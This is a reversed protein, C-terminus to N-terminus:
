RCRGGFDSLLLSLDLTTVRGDGNVDGDARTAGSSTPLHALLQVLDSLDVDADADVDSLCYAPEFHLTTTMASGCDNFAFVSYDGADEPMLPDFTLVASSVGHIRDTEYLAVGNLYWSFEVPEASQVDVTLEGRLGVIGSAVTPAGRIWIPRPGVWEALGAASVGDVYFVQAGVLLRPEAGDRTLSGIARVRMGHDRLTFWGNRDWGAVGAILSPGVRMPYAGVYLADGLGDNHAEISDIMPTGEVRSVETWRQGDWKVLRVHSAESGVTYLASGDGADFAKLSFVAASGPYGTGVPM